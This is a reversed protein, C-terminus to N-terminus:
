QGGRDLWTAGDRVNSVSAASVAYKTALSRPTAGAALSVRIAQVDETTLRANGIVTPARGREVKETMNTQPTGLFLHAPNVCPPNDCRHTVLADEPIEGKFMRYSVRHAKQIKNGVSIAGYGNSFRGRNWSWCPTDLPSPEPTFSSMLRAETSWDWVDFGAGGNGYLCLILDKPFGQAHGVFKVRTKLALVLSRKHVHEVFWNAGVGAPVLMAILGTRMQCELACKAAWPGIDRFEPNLWLLGPPCDTAWSQKLSDQEVSFFGGNGKRNDSSAALDWMIPGFKREVALILEPPTAVDQKSRGPKQIPVTM